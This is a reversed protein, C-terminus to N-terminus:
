AKQTPPLPWQRTRADNPILPPPEVLAPLEPPTSVRTWGYHGYEGLSVDKMQRDCSILFDLNFTQNFPLFLSFSFLPNMVVGVVVLWGVILMDKLGEEDSQRPAMQPSYLMRGVELPTGEPQTGAERGQPCM